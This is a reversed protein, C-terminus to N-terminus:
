VIIILKYNKTDRTIRQGLLNFLTGTRDRDKINNIVISIHIKIFNLSFFLGNM